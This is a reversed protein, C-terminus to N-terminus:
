KCWLVCKERGNGDRFASSKTWVILSRRVGQLIPLVGHRHLGVHVICTGPIQSVEVHEDPHHPNQLHNFCRTGQFYLESGVFDGSLCFNFTVESDDAHFGLSRNYQDGYTVSFAHHHDLLGLDLEPFLQEVISNAISRTFQQFITHFEILQMEIGYDHMSNPPQLSVQYRSSWRELHAIEMSLQHLLEPKFLAIRWIGPALLEAVNCWDTANVDQLDYLFAKEWTEWHWLEPAIPRWDSLTKVEEPVGNPLQADSKGYAEKVSKLSESQVSPERALYKRALYKNRINRLRRLRM